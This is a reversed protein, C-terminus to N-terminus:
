GLYEETKEVQFLGSERFFQDLLHKHGAGYIVLIRENDNKVLRCTNTYIILNRRYWYNALWDIGTYYDDSAVRAYYKIYQQHNKWVETDKNLHLLYERITSRNMLEQDKAHAEDGSRLMEEYLQPQVEKAFEYVYGAPIGGVPRNWDVAYISEHGLDKAIQFAFQHIEDNELELEGRTFKQYQEHLLDQRVMDYEVAIKTPKFTKVREVVERVEDSKTRADGSDM